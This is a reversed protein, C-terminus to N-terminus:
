EDTSSCQEILEAEELNIDYLKNYVKEQMKLSPEKIGHMIQYLTSRGYESVRAIHSINRNTKQLYTKLDFFIKSM